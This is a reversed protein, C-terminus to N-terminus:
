DKRKSIDTVFAIGIRGNPRDVYSVAIEIPFESGDKRYGVLEMGTGMGRIQHHEMFQDQQRTHSARKFEPLLIEIRNGVLERPAYGFMEYTHRNALAIRGQANIGIIGQTASELLALIMQPNGFIGLTEEDTLEPQSTASNTTEPNAKGYTGTNHIYHDSSM